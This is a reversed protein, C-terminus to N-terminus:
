QSERFTRRLASMAPGTVFPSTGLKLGLGLGQLGLGTLRPSLTLAGAIPNIFATGAAQGVHLPSTTLLKEFPKGQMQGAFEKNINSLGPVEKELNEQTAKRVGKLFTTGRKPFEAGYAGVQSDFDSLIEQARTASILGQDDTADMFDRLLQKLPGATKASRTAHEMRATIPSIVDATRIKGALDTIGTRTIALSTREAEPTILNTGLPNRVLNAGPEIAKTTGRLLGATAGAIKPVAYNIGQGAMMGMGVNAPSFGEGITAGINQLMNQTPSSTTPEYSPQTMYNVAEKGAELPSRGGAMVGAATGVGGLTTEVAQNLPKAQATIIGVPGLGGAAMTKAAELLIQKPGPLQRTQAPESVPPEAYRIRAEEVLQPDNLLEQAEEETLSNVFEEYRSPM